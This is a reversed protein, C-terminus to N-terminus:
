IWKTHTHTHKDNLNLFKCLNALYNLWKVVINPSHYPHHYHLSLVWYAHSDMEFSYRDFNENYDDFMKFNLWAEYPIRCLNIKGDLKWCFCHIHTQMLAHHYHTINSINDFHCDNFQDIHTINLNCGDMCDLSHATTHWKKTYKM